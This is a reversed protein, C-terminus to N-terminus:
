TNLTTKFYVKKASKTTSTNEKALSSKGGLRMKDCPVIIIIQFFDKELSQAYKAYFMDVLTILMNRM